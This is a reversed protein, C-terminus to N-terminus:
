WVLLGTAAQGPGGRALGVGAAIVAGAIFGDLRDMFGGHGPILRGSDKVDFHRKFASEFLDGLVSALGLGASVLALKFGIPVGFVALVGLGAIVAGALGGIMGSWTKKPSISPALKPGGIARGAFYAFVDAAWVVAFLFFIAALGHVPDRRLLAVSVFLLGAYVLGAAVWGAAGARARVIGFWEAFVILALAAWVVLFVGGGAVASGLAGLALVIASLIRKKLESVPAGARGAGGADSAASGAIAGPSSASRRM